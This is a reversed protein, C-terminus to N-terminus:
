STPKILSLIKEESANYPILVLRISNLECWSAKRRDRQQQEILKSKDGHFFKSYKYHQQGQVEVAVRAIPLFFDLYLGEGPLTFEELIYDGNYERALIGGVDSQFLGRGEGVEKRKWKSPRIDISYEKGALSTFKL